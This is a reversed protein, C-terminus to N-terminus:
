ITLAGTFLKWHLCLEEHGNIAGPLIRTAPDTCLISQQSTDHICLCPELLVTSQLPTMLHSPPMLTVATFQSFIGSVDVPHLVTWM